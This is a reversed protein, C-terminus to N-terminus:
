LKPVLDNPAVPMENVRNWRVNDLNNDNSDVHDTNKIISPDVSKKDVYNKTPLEIITKPTSLTSNPFVSDQNM